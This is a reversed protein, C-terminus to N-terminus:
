IGVKRGFDAVYTFMGIAFKIERFFFYYYIFVFPFARHDYSLISISQTLDPRVPFIQGETM